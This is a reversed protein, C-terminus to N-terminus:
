SSSSLIEAYCFLIGDIWDGFVSSLKSLDVMFLNVWSSCLFKSPGIAFIIM